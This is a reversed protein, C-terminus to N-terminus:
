KFLKFLTIIAIIGTISGIIYNMNKLVFNNEIDKKRFIRIYFEFVSYTGMVVGITLILNYFPHFLFLSYSAATISVFVYYPIPFVNITAMMMGQAFKKRKNHIPIEPTVKSKKKTKKFFFYFTLITFIVLGIEHIIENVFPNKDIIKAFFIALYVQLFIIVLCGLTFFVAQKKGEDVAIKVVTANLLGPLLTGIVSATIGIIFTYFINM